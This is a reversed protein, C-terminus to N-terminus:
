HQVLNSQTNENVSHNDQRVVKLNQNKIFSQELLM